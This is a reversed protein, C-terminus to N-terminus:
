ASSSAGAPRTAASRAAPVLPQGPAPSTQRGPLSSASSPALPPPPALGVVGRGADALRAAAAAGSDSLARAPASRRVAEDPLRPGLSLRRHAHADGRQRPCTQLGRSGRRHRAGPGCAARLLHPLGQRSRRRIGRRDWDGPLQRLLSVLREMKGPTRRERFWALNVAIGGRKGWPDPSSSKRSRPSSRRRSPM